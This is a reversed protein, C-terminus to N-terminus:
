GRCHQLDDLLTRGSKQFFENIRCNVGHGVLGATGVAIRDIDDGGRGIGVGAVMGAEADDCKQINYGPHSVSYGTSNM